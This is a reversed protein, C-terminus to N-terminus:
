RKIINLTTEINNENPSLTIYNWIEAEMSVYCTKVISFIIHEPIQTM